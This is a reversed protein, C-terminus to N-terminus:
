YMRQRAYPASVLSRYHPSRVEDFLKLADALALGRAHAWDIARTLM